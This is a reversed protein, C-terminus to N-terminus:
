IYSHFSIWFVFFDWITHLLIFIDDTCNDPHHNSHSYVLSGYTCQVVFISLIYIEYMISHAFTSNGTKISKKREHWYISYLSCYCNLLGYSALTGPDWVKLYWNIESYQVNQQYYYNFHLCINYILLLFYWKCMKTTKKM